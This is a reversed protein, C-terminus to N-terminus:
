PVNLRELSYSFYNYCTNNLKWQFYPIISYINNRYYYIIIRKYNFFAYVFYTDYYLYYAPILNFWLLDIWRFICHSILSYRSLLLWFLYFFPKLSVYLNGKRKICRHFRIWRCFFTQGNTSEDSCITTEDPYRYTM